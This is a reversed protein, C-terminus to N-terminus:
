GSTVTQRMNELCRLRRPFRPAIGFHQICNSPKLEIKNHDMQAAMESVGHDHKPDLPNLQRSACRITYWSCGKSDRCCVWGSCLWHRFQRPMRSSTYGLRLNPHATAGHIRDSPRRANEMSHRKPLRCYWLRLRVSTQTLEKLRSSPRRARSTADHHTM